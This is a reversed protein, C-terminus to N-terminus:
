TIVEFVFCRVHQIGSFYRGVEYSTEEVSVRVWEGLSGGSELKKLVRDISKVYFEPICDHEMPQSSYVPILGLNLCSQHNRYEKTLM